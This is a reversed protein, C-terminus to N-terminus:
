GHRCTTTPTHRGGGRSSGARLLARGAGGTVGGASGCGFGFGVVFFFTVSFAQRYRGTTTGWAFDITARQQRQGGLTVPGARGTSQRESGTAATAHDVANDFHRSGARYRTRGECGPGAVGGRGSRERATGDSTRQDSRARRSRSAIPGSISVSGAGTHCTCRCEKRMPEPRDAVACRNRQARAERLGRRDSNM